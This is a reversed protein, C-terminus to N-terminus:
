PQSDTSTSVASQPAPAAASIDLAPLLLKYLLRNDTGQESPAAEIRLNELKKM